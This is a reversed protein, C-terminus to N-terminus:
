GISRAVHAIRRRPLLGEEVARLGLRPAGGRFPPVGGGQGRGALSRWQPDEACDGEPVEPDVDEVAHPRDQQGEELSGQLERGTLDAQCDADM